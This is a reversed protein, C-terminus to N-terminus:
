FHEQKLTQKRRQFKWVFVLFNHFERRTITKHQNDRSFSRINGRKNAIVISEVKEIYM